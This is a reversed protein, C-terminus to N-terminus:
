RMGKGPTSELGTDLLMFTPACSSSTKQIWHGKPRLKDWTRSFCFEIKYAEWVTIYKSHTGSTKLSALHSLLPPGAELFIHGMEKYTFWLNLSESGARLALVWHPWWKVRPFIGRGQATKLLLKVLCQNKKKLWFFLFSTNVSHRM